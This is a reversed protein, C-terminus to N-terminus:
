CTLFLMELDNIDGIGYSVYHTRCTVLENKPQKVKKLFNRVRMLSTTIYLKGGYGIFYHFKTTLGLKQHEDYDKAISVTSVMEYIVKDIDGETMQAQTKLLKKDYDWLHYECRIDNDIKGYQDLCGFIRKIEARLAKNKMVYSLDKDANDDMLKIFSKGINQDFEKDYYSSLRIVPLKGVNIVTSEKGRYFNYSDNYWKFEADDMDVGPAWNTQARLGNLVGQMYKKDKESPTSGLELISHELIYEIKQFLSVYEPKKFIKSLEQSIEVATLISANIKNIAEVISFITPLWSFVMDIKTSNLQETRFCIVDGVMSDSHLLYTGNLNAKTHSVQIDKNARDWSKWHKISQQVSKTGRCVKMGRHSHSMTPDNYGFQLTDDMFELTATVAKDEPHEYENMKVVRSPAVIKTFKLGHDSYRDFGYDVCLTDSIVHTFAFHSSKYKKDEDRRGSFDYKQCCEKYIPAPTHEAIIKGDPFVTQKHVIPKLLGFM